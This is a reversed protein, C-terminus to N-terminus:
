GTAVIKVFKRKGVQLIAEKRLEIAKEPDDIKVGDLRVGGQAIARRAEGNTAALGSLVMLKVIWIKGGETHSQWLNFEPIDRPIGDHTFVKDFNEKAQQSARTGHYTSVISCALKEKLAKPHLEGATCKKFFGDIEELSFDTLLEFYKRMLSDPISMAKGYMEEPREAIGIYNGLSKSMKQVGDTGELLPLTLVVEPDQAYRRQLTRAMLLNFKQDTGGIEIDARLVISDYAQLLPYMFEVLSIDINNKYRKSFDDREIIRAVTQHSALELLKEMKLDTLWASNFETKIKKIDLIKAAQAQYTAANERVEEKTLPKRMQNRGTPDGIMATFDGVLFVVTHGLEQFQRLKRLIVTHGLHIDPASPDFGAKVILPKKESLSKKLKERLADESFLEVVGRTIVSVQRSIEKELMKETM